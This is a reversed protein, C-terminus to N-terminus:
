FPGQIHIVAGNVGGTTASKLFNVVYFRSYYYDGTTSLYFAHKYRIVYGHGAIITAQATYGSTPKQTVAGLGKVEGIDAIEAGDRIYDSIFSTSSTGPCADIVTNLTSYDLDFRLQVYKYSSYYSIVDLAPGEYIIVNSANSMTTTVTGSPDAPVADDEKTCSLFLISAFIVFLFIPFPRKM